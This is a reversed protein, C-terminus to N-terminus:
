SGVTVVRSDAYVNVKISFTKNNYPYEGEENQSFDINEDIWMRLRFNKEYNTAGEPVMDSYLQRETIDSPLNAVRGLNSYNNLLLEEEDTGDVSTLYIKVAQEDLTSSSDMRATIIYPISVSSITKSKVKFNFVKGSGVQKKGEEDSIPFADSISIGSGSAEVEEYIFTISGTEIVNETVGEKMYAFFAFTVASTIFVLGLLLIIVLLINKVNNKDKM